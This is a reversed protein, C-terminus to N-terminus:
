DPVRRFNGIGRKGRKARELFGGFIVAIRSGYEEHGKYWMVGGFKGTLEHKQPCAGRDAHRANAATASDAQAILGLILPEAAAQSETQGGAREQDIGSGIEAGLEQAFTDAHRMGQKVRMVVGIM